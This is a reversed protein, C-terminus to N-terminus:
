HAPMLHDQQFVGDWAIVLPQLLTQGLEDVVLLSACDYVDRLLNERTSACVLLGPLNRSTARYSGAGGDQTVEVCLLLAAGRRASWRWFPFGVQVM